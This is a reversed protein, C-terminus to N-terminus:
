RQKAAHSKSQHRVRRRYWRGVARGIRRYKAIMHEDVSAYHFILSTVAVTVIAVAALTIMVWIVLSRLTGGASGSAMASRVALPITSLLFPLVCIKLLAIYFDGIPRLYQLFPLQMAGLALAIAIAAFTISPRNISHSLAKLSFRGSM